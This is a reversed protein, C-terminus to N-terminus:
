TRRHDDGEGKLQQRASSPLTNKAAYKTPNFCSFEKCPKKHNNYDGNLLKESGGAPVITEEEGRKDALACGSLAFM